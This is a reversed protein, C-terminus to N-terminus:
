WGIYFKKARLPAQELIAFEADETWAREEATSSPAWRELLYHVPKTLWTRALFFNHVKGLISFLKQSM